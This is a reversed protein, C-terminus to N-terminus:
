HNESIVRNMSVLEYFFGNDKVSFWPELKTPLHVVPALGCGSETNADLANCTLERIVARVKYKYINSSLLQFAKSSAEIRFGSTKFEGGVTANKKEQNVIM